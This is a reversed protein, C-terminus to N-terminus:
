GFSRKSVGSKSDYAKLMNFAEVIRDELQQFAAPDQSRRSIRKRTLGGFLSGADDLTAELARLRSAKSSTSRKSELRYSAPIFPFLDNM